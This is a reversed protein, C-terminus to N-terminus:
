SPAPAAERSRQSLDPETAFSVGFTENSGSNKLGEPLEPVPDGAPHIMEYYKHIIQKRPLSTKPM